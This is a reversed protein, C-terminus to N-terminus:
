WCILKPRMRTIVTSLDMLALNDWWERLKRLRGGASVDDAFWVQTLARVNIANILPVSALSFMTMALPDGQTTGEQSLLVKGGVFLSTESRYFNILM